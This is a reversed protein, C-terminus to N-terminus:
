QNVYMCVNMSEVSGCSNYLSLLIHFLDYICLYVFKCQLFVVCM